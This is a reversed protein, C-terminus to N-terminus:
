AAQKVTIGIKALDDYAQQKEAAATGTKWALRDSMIEARGISLMVGDVDASTADYADFLIGAAVQSGDVSLPDWEAVRPTGSTPYTAAVVIDYKDGAAFDTSGETITLNLQRNVFIATGGAGATITRTEVTDGDPGRMQFTGSNTAAATCVLQYTGSKADPGLTIASLVGNGTGQPAPTGAATVVVTFVDDEDYDASGDGITFSLHDSVYAVAVTAAPLAQGDPAVVSFTGSNAAEATCTLVYSGIQAKPGMLLGTMTGDGTGVVTPTPAAAQARLIKGVVTLVAFNTGSPCVIAERGALNEPEFLIADGYRNSETQTAM